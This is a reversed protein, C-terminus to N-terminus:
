PATRPKQYFLNIGTIMMNIEGAGSAAELATDIPLRYELFIRAIKERKERPIVLAHTGWVYPTGRTYWDTNYPELTLQNPSISSGAPYDTLEHFLRFVDTEPHERLNKEMFNRLTPEEIIPTADSEGFIILDDDNFQPDLLMRAFSIRLSRVYPKDCGQPHVGLFSSFEEYRKDLLQDVQQSTPYSTYDFGLLSLEKEGELIEGPAQLLICKM